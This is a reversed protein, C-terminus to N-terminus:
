QSKPSKALAPKVRKMREPEPAIAEWTPVVLRRTKVEPLGGPLWYGQWDGTGLALELHQGNHLGVEDAVRFQKFEGRALVRIIVHHRKATVLIEGIGKALVWAYYEREGLTLLHTHTATESLEYHGQRLLEIM